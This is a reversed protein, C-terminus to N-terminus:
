SEHCAISSCGNVTKWDKKDRGQMESNLKWLQKSFKFGEAEGVERGEGCKSRGRTAQM